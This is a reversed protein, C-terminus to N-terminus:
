VLSLLCVAFSSDDCCMIARLLMFCVFFDKAHKAAERNVSQAAAQLSRQSAAPISWRSRTQIFSNM